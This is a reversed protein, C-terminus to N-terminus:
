ILIQFIYYALLLVIIGIIRYVLDPFNLWPILWNELKNKPLIIVLLGKIGALIAIIQIVLSTFPTTALVQAQWLFYAFALCILGWFWFPLCNILGKSLSKVKKPLILAIVGFITWVAILLYLSWKM